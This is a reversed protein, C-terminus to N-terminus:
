SEGRFAMVFVMLLLGLAVGLASCPQECYSIMSQQRARRHVSGSLQTRQLGSRNDDTFVIETISSACGITIEMGSHQLSKSFLGARNTCVLSASILSM